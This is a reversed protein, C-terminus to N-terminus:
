SENEESGGYPTQPEAAMPLEDGHALAAAEGLVAIRRRLRGELRRFTSEVKAGRFDHEWFRWVALGAARLKRRSRADRQRNRELKPLWYEQNTKPEHGHHPCSHYFCGDVFVALQLAGVLFDPQGPLTRVNREVTFSEGLMERLMRYLREEPRTGASHIRSMIESRKDKSFIDVV